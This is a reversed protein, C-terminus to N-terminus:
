KEAVGQMFDSIATQGDFDTSLTGNYTVQSIGGGNMDYRPPFFGASLNNPDYGAVVMSGVITGHGGGQRTVGDEGTVIILGKFSFNGALTLEGTVVLIGGGEGTFTCDGDCFTIGTGSNFDGFSTPQVGSPYYSLSNQSTVRLDQVLEELAYSSTAWDPAEAGLISPPPTLPTPPQNAQIYALVSPDNVGVSPVVTAVEGPDVVCDGNDPEGIVDIGCYLVNNSNGPEWLFGPGMPGPAYLPTGPALNNFFNRHIVAELEKRAGNPGFGTSNVVLRYPEVPTTTAWVQAQTTTDEIPIVIDFAAGPTGTCNSNQCLNIESGLKFYKYSNFRVLLNAGGNTITAKGRFITTVPRPVAYLTYSIEFPTEGSTAGSGNKTVNFTTVLPNTTLPFDIRQNTISTFSIEVNNEGGVTPISITNGATSFISHSQTDDPDYVKIKYNVDDDIVIRDPVAAGPSTYDYTLWGSLRAYSSPDGTYNSTLPNVAVTYGIDDSTDAPTTDTNGRLVNITAQLGSEAAYYAKSESLVDTVNRSHSGVASLIAICAILLLVSILLVTVLAVGSENNKFKGSNM